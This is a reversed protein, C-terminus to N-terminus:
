RDNGAGPLLVQLEDLAAAVAARRDDPLPEILEVAAALLDRRMATARRRGTRTLTLRVSRRDTPDKGRELLGADVLGGALRTVVPASVLLRRAIEAQPMPGESHIIRLVNYQQYTLRKWTAHRRAHALLHRMVWPITAILRTELEDGGPDPLQPRPDGTVPM